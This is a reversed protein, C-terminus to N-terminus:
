KTKDQEPMKMVMAYAEGQNKLRVSEMQAQKRNEFRGMYIRYWTGKKKLDVRVKFTDPNLRKLKEIADDALNSHKYSRVHVTYAFIPPQKKKHHPSPPQIAASTSRGHNNKKDLAPIRTKIVKKEVNEETESKKAYTQLRSAFMEPHEIHVEKKLLDVARQQALVAEELRGAEAYAAALTDLFNAEEYRGAVKEALAVAKQADRYEPDPCTSLMWALQNAGITYYRNIELAKVCDNIAKEYEGKQYWAVGRNSYAEYDHPIVELTFSFADIARDYQKQNLLRLGEEFWDVTGRATGATVAILLSFLLIGYTTKQLIKKGNHIM